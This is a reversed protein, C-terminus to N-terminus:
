GSDSELSMSPRRAWVLHHVHRFVVARSPFRHARLCAFRPHVASYVYLSPLAIFRAVELSPPSGSYPAHRAAFNRGPSISVERGLM